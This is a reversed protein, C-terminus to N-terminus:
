IKLLSPREGRQGPQDQVGSRMIRGGRVGLSSPNCAHIVVGPREKFKGEGSVCIGASQSASIPPDSSALLELGAQAFHCSELELVCLNCYALIEGSCELRAVSFSEMLIQFGDKEAFQSAASQGSLQCAKLMCSRGLAGRNSRMGIWSDKIIEYTMWGKVAGVAGKEGGGGKGRIEERVQIGLVKPPDGSTPLKLGAQGVHLFGTEILFVFNASHPPAHRYDWSNPLSLCSFRKFGPPLPQLSRLDRWQVGTQALVFSRKPLGLSSSRKFGPTGSWSPCCGSVGGDRCFFSKFFNALRPPVRRPDQLGLVKPPQPPRIVLPRFNLVLRVLMSFGWGRSASAPSDSSGLLHLNCHASITGSCELRLFMVLRTRHSVGTIGASQFASAPLDSLGLFNSVLRALVSSGIEAPTLSNSVLKVLMTFGGDGINTTRAVKLASTPPDSPGLLGLSCHAMNIGSREPRSGTGTIDVSHTASDPPNSSALLELSAQGVHCLGMEILFVFFDALCLPARRYDWSSPLSLCLFRKLKPPSPQLSGFDCWQVRAQAISCSELLFMFQKPFAIAPWVCHSVGTVSAPLDSSGLLELGAQVVFHFGPRWLLYLFQSPMTACEQLGWSHSLSHPPVIVTIGVSQSVSAPLDSSTLLELSAQGVHNFGMKSTLLELGAQGVHHFGLDVLFIFILHFHHYAGTIGAVPSHSAPSDSSSKDGLSSHDRSM